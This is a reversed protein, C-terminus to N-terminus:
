WTRLARARGAQRDALRGLQDALVGFVAVLHRQRDEPLLRHRDPRSNVM